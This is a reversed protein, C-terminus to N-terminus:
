LKSAGATRFFARVAACIREEFARCRFGFDIELDQVHLITRAGICKAAALAIPAAFLTPEVCLVVDPRHRLLSWLVIPASSVAFSLPPLLRWIGRMETKLFIPCRIVSVGALVESMYHLALYPKKLVWGPYHPPTTVVRVHHGNMSLFSGIDGTYRGVGIFEPAYNLGYILIDLSKQASKDMQHSPEERM